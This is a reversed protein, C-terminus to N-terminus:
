KPLETREATFYKLAFSASKPAEKAEPPSTVRYVNGTEKDKFYDNHEIPLDRQVLAEYISTSANQREAITAETSTNLAQYNIFEVGEDWTTIYGGEGDPKRTKEMIVCKRAFQDLLSM